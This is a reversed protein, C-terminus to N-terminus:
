VNCRDNNVFKRGTVLSSFRLFEIREFVSVDDTAHINAGADLLLKVVEFNAHTAWMMAENIDQFM